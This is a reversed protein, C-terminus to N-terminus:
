RYSTYLLKEALILADVPWLCEPRPQQVAPDHKSPRCTLVSQRWHFPVADRGHVAGLLAGCIAANTDTDGGASITAILADELSKAHLLQYLANWFAILVWGCHTLYDEPPRDSSAEIVTRIAHDMNLESAWTTIKEHLAEPRTGNRIADSIARVYLINIQICIPNKHTITTDDIVLQDLKRTDPLITAGVIGLPSIRMLAGNSQSSTDAKMNNLANGITNGCDFPHTTLWFQYANASPTDNVLSRALLLAMESDDTPQGAITKFISSGEMDRVGNPFENRIQEPTKWEAQSGLADGALQGLLCGQARSLVGPNAESKARVPWSLTYPDTRQPRHFVRSWDRKRLTEIIDKDGGFVNGDGPLYLQGSSSYTVPEGFSSYLDLGAGLLLAHGGALDWTTPGYLSLTADGEGAAVLAMRWAISPMARYRMPAILSINAEPNRDASQSVLVVPPLNAERSRSTHVIKGNRRVHDGKRWTVIEGKDDPYNYAHVVGVVPEGDDLLAISIAAGRFGKQFARTGDNPDVVWLRKTDRGPRSGTEEGLYGYTPFAALLHARITEEAVTDVGAHDVSDHPPPPEHFASRLLKAARHAAEIAASLEHSFELNDPKTIM